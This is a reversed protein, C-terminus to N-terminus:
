HKDCVTVKPKTAEFDYDTHPKGFLHQEARIWEHKSIM